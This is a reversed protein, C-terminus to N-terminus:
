SPSINHKWTQSCVRFLNRLERRVAKHYCGYPLQLLPVAVSMCSLFAILLFIRVVKLIETGNSSFCSTSLQSDMERGGSAATSLRKGCCLVPKQRTHLVSLETCSLQTCLSLLNSEWAAVYLFLRSCGPFKHTCCLGLSPSRCPSVAFSCSQAGVAARKAWHLAAAQIGQPNWLEPM